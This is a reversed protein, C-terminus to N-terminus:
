PVPGHAPAGPRAPRPGRGRREPDALSRYIAAAEEALPRAAEHQGTQQRVASLALSAQAIRAPDDLDRGAQLALTHAAIAEEWYASIEMFDALLHTLDACKAAEM